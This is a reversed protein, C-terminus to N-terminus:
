RGLAAVLRDLATALTEPAAAFCLRLHGEGGLGFAAGPALGVKAEDVMRRALAVSDLPRGSGDDVAFFAYFAADPRAIRVNPLQGLKAQVLDRNAAFRAILEAVYPEGAGIATVAAEQVFTSAGSTNYETLKNIIPVMAAPATLWGLRWGTMAWTKSFSNVVMLRDDPETVDLFSPAVPRDFTIRAYVEDAVIWIGRRRAEAVVERMAAHEMLWGTPNNPSNIFLAVTRDDILAFMRDLDLTWGTPGLSLAVERAEGGLMRVVSAANPWVPSVMVVNSGPSVLAQLAIAIANMGSQTVSLRDEGIPQGYLRTMYDSLAARLRPQGQKIAYLTFGADLAAKGAEIIFPPSPLDSEGFWLAILDPTGM